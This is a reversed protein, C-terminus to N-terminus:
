NNIMKHPYSGKAFEISKKLIAIAEVASLPTSIEEVESLKQVNRVLEKGKIIQENAIDFIKTINPANQSIKSLEISTLINQLINNIDHSFLDKYLNSRNYAEHYKIESNKLKEEAKVKETNDILIALIANKGKYSITKSYNDIFVIEGNKKYARFPVHTKVDKYGLLKKRSDEAIMKMDDPHIIKLYDITKWEMVEKAPYGVINVARQNIYKISDDQLIAIGVMSEESITRFKEESERLSEEAKRKESIDQIIIMIFMIGNLEILTVQSHIWLLTGDNKIIQLEIPDLKEGESYLTLKKLLPIMDSPITPLNFFNTGIYKEKKYGLVKEIYSNFDFILGNLDTLMIGFPSNEFLHRYRKESERIKQELHEREDKKSM